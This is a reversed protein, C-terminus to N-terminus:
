AKRDIVERVVEALHLIDLPKMVVKCIGSDKLREDTILESYGTNLIIPLGPRHRVIIKALELGTMEPMTQDTIVLDYADKRALFMRMAELSSTTTDVRYGLSELIKKGLAVLQLEDDVLLILETGTPPQAQSPGALAAEPKKELVPFFVDFTAGQGPESHVDIFGRHSKVIGHVVSLGMGTGEGLKKTTFFPDFIRQIIEPSIGQGTDSVSLRAYRGEQMERPLVNGQRRVEVEELTVTLIGGHERMAYSANTCLNLLIQHIQTPDALIYGTNAHIEQRIEITTPLSSRLMKLAEKVIHGMQMPQKMVEKQRSFALIQKVLEVARMSSTFIEQLHERVPDHEVKRLALETNGVIVALINNFDHAIGGALTGIAELKQSQRLQEEMIHREKMEMELQKNARSIENNREEIHDLMENFGRALSGIEDSSTVAQRTGFDGMEVKKMHEVIKKLPKTTASSILYSVIYCLVITGLIIGGFFSLDHFLIEQFRKKSIGVEVEGVEKNNHYVPATYIRNEKTDIKFPKVSASTIPKKRTDFIVAYVIEKDTMVERIYDELVWYDYTIIPIVSIKALLKTVTHGKEDIHANFDVTMRDIMYMGLTTCALFLPVFIGLLIKTAFKLDRLSKM